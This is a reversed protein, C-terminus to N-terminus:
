FHTNTISLQLHITVLQIEQIVSHFLASLDIETDEEEEEEKKGTLTNRNQDVRYM